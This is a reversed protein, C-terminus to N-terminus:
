GTGATDPPQRKSGGCQFMPHAPSLCVGCQHAFKCKSAKCKEGPTNYRYCIPTGEKNHSLCGPLTKGKGKGKSKGGAADGKARKAPPEKPGVPPAPASRKACLALPTTFHREKTTPDRWAAKLATPLPTGDQNVRRMAEKRVAKEYALVLRFPPAAVTYGESDRAHLGYVHEGLLYDKLEEFVRVYNGQLEPRNTHKLAIMMMANRMITLKVRLSEPNEPDKSRTSGRRVSLNGKSDFQPILADPDAEDRSVVETLDEARYDGSEVEQLKKEVYEKAPLTKEELAGLAKELGAKMALWESSVVPKRWEKTDLEAEMEASRQVRTRANSWACTVAAVKVRADLSAASDLGLHDRLVTALDEVDKAINAFKELSTVGAFFWKAMTKRDVENRELLFKLDSGGKKLAEEEEDDTLAIPPM